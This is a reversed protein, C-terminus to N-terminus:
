PPSLNHERDQRGSVPQQEDAGKRDKWVGHEAPKQGPGPCRMPDV